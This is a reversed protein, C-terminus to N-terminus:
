RRPRSTSTSAPPQSAPLDAIAFPQAPCSRRGSQAARGASRWLRTVLNDRSAHDAPVDAVQERRGAHGTKLHYPDVGVIRAVRGRRGGLHSGNSFGTQMLVIPRFAFHTGRCAHYACGGFQGGRVVKRVIDPAAPCLKKRAGVDRAAFCESSLVSPHLNGM